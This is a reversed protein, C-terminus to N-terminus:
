FRTEELISHFYVRAIIPRGGLKERPARGLSSFYKASEYIERLALRYNLLASFSETTPDSGIPGAISTISARPHTVNLISQPQRGRFWGPRISLRLVM